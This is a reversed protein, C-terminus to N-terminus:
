SPQLGNKEYFATLQKNIKALESSTAHTRQSFLARRAYAYRIAVDTYGQWQGVRQRQPGTFLRTELAQTAKGIEDPSWHQRQGAVRLLNAFSGTLVATAQIRLDVEKIRAYGPTRMLERLGTLDSVEKSVGSVLVQQTQHLGELAHMPARLEVEQRRLPEYRENAADAKAAIRKSFIHPNIAVTKYEDTNLVLGNLSYDGSGFLSAKLHEPSVRIMDVDLLEGVASISVGGLLRAVSGFARRRDNDISREPTPLEPMGPFAEQSDSTRPSM